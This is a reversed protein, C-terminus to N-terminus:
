IVLDSEFIKRSILEKTVEKTFVNIQRSFHENKRLFHSRIKSSKEVCCLAHMIKNERFFYYHPLILTKMKVFNKRILAFFLLNWHLKTKHFLLHDFFLMYLKTKVFNKYLLFTPSPDFIFLYSTVKISEKTVRFKKCHIFKFIIQVCTQKWSM